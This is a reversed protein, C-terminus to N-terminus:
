KAHDQPPITRTHDSTDDDDVQKEEFRGTTDESNM